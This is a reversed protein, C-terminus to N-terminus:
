PFTFDGVTPIFLQGNFRGAFHKANNLDHFCFYIWDRQDAKTRICGTRLKEGRQLCFQIMADLDSGFGLEPVSLRVFHSNRLSASATAGNLGSM